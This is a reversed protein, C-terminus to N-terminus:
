SASKGAPFSRLRIRLTFSVRWNLSVCLEFNDGCQVSLISDLVTGMISSPWYDTVPFRQSVPTKKKNTQNRTIIYPYGDKRTDLLLTSKATFKSSIGWGGGTQFEICSWSCECTLYLSVTKSLIPQLPWLSVSSLANHQGTSINHLVREVTDSESYITREYIILARALKYSWYADTASCVSFYCFTSTIM